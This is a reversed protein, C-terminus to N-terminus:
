DRAIRRTLLLNVVSFGLIVIFLVWAITSAYGFQFNRFGQEYLFLALTQYQRAAGGTIAQQTGGFVLPETFIQMGGITSVITVFIITNRLQPVTVTFFQRLRGAGDMAAVEYLDRPIAQMAALLILTNYGTWRWMVMTSIAVHSSPQSAQWDVRNLGLSELLFNMLGYDRGFISSFVIGVALVSTINPVLMAMRFIGKGRLLTENLVHALFLALILQPVTSIVWISLTNFAANWFRPDALLRAYNDFSVFTPDSLAGWQHLSVWATFLIPILGFLGFVIFFPAIYAYGGIREDLRGWLSTRPAAGGPTSTTAM